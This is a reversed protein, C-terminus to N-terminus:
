VFKLHCEKFFTQLQNVVPRVACGHELYEVYSALTEGRDGCSPDVIAQRRWGDRCGNTLVRVLWAEERDAGFPVSALKQAARLYTEQVLDRVDDVNSSVWRPPAVHFHVRSCTIWLMSALVFVNRTM